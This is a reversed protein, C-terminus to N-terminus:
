PLVRLNTPAAPKDITTRRTFPWIDWPTSRLAGDKNTTFSSSLNAGRGIIATGTLPRFNLQGVNAFKASGGNIANTGLQGSKTGGNATAYFSNSYALLSDVSASHFEVDGNNAVFANNVIAVGQSSYRPQTYLSLAYGQANGVNYFVNNYFRSNPM